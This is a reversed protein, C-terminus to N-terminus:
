PKRWIKKLSSFPGTLRAKLGFLRRRWYMPWPRLSRVVAPLQVMHYGIMGSAVDGGIFLHNEIDCFAAHVKFLQNREWEHSVLPILAAMEKSTMGPKIGSVYIRLIDSLGNCVASVDGVAIHDELEKIVRAPDIVVKDALSSTSAVAAVAASPAPVPKFFVLLFSGIVGFLVIAGGLMKWFMAKGQYSGLDLEEKIDEADSTLVTGYVLKFEQTSFTPPESGKVSLNIYAFKQSPVIIEGKKEGMYRLHYTVDFFNEKEFKRKNKIDTEEAFEPDLELIGFNMAQPKLEDWVPEYNDVYRITYTLKVSEWNTFATRSVQPGQVFFELLVEQGLLQVPAFIALASFLIRAAVRDM